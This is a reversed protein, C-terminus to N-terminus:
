PNAPVGLEQRLTQISQQIEEAARQSQASRASAEALRADAEAEVALRRAREYDEERIASRASDLKEEASQFPLPAHQRGGARQADDYASQAVALQESPVNPQTACALLLFSGAAPIIVLRNLQRKGIVKM